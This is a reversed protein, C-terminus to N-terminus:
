FLQLVQYLAFCLMVIGIGTTGLSRRHLASLAASERRNAVIFGRGQRGKWVLVADPPLSPPPLDQLRQERHGDHRTSFFMGFYSIAVMFQGRLVEPAAGIVADRWEGSRIAHLLRALGREDGALSLRRVDDLTGLVYLPGGAEMRRERVRLRRGGDWSIGARHLWGIGHAPLLDKGSEWTHTELLLEAGRLWVPVRGTEDELALRGNGGHQALVQYWRSKGRRDRHWAHVDVDWWVSPRGSVAAATPQEAIAVGSLEVLGMAASAVKATPTNAIFLADRLGILGRRFLWAGLAIVAPLYLVSGVIVAVYLMLIILLIVSAIFAAFKLGDGRRSSRAPQPMLAHTSRV